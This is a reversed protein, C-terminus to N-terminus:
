LFFVHEAVETAIALSVLSLSRHRLLMAGLVVTEAARALRSRAARSLRTWDLLAWLLQRCHGWALWVWLLRCARSWGAALRLALVAHSRPAWGARVDGALLGAQRAVHLAALAAFRWSGAAPVASTALLLFGFHPVLLLPAASSVVAPPVHSLRLWVVAGVLWGWFQPDAADFCRGRLLEALWGLWM